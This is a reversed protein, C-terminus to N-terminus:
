IIKNLQNSQISDVLDLYLQHFEGQSTITPASESSLVLSLTDLGLLKAHSDRGGGVAGGGANSYISSADDFNNGGNNTTTM